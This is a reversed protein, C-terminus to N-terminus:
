SGLYVTHQIIYGVSLKLSLYTIYFSSYFVNCNTYLNYHVHFVSYLLNTDCVQNFTNASASCLGTGVSVWMLLSVDIPVPAMVAGSLTTLVVLAIITFLYMM